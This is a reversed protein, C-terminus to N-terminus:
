TSCISVFASLPTVLANVHTRYSRGSKGESFDSESQIIERELAGYAGKEEGAYEELIWKGVM